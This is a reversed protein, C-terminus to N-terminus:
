YRFGEPFCRLLWLRFQAFLLPRIKVPESLISELIIVACISCSSPSMQWQNASRLFFSIPGFWIRRKSLNIVVSISMSVQGIGLNDLPCDARMSLHSSISIGTSKRTLVFSFRWRSNLANLNGSTIFDCHRCLNVPSSTNRKPNYLNAWVLLHVNHCM